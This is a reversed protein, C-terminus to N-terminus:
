GGDAETAEHAEPESETGAEDSREISITCDTVLAAVAGVAALTPLLLAGVVGLTLPIELLVEGDANKISIRRVNGERVLEKIKAVVEDGKVSVEEISTNDTV